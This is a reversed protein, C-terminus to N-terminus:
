FLDLCKIARIHKNTRGVPGKLRSSDIKFLFFSSPIIFRFSQIAHKTIYINTNVDDLSARLLQHGMISLLGTM